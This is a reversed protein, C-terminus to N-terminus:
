NMRGGIDKAGQKRAGRLQLHSQQQSRGEVLPHRADVAAVDARNREPGFDGLLPITQAAGEAGHWADGDDVSILLTPGRPIAATNASIAGGGSGSQQIAGSDKRKWGRERSVGMVRATCGEM